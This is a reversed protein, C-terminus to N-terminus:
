RRYSGSFALSRYKSALEALRDTTGSIIDEAGLLWVAFTEGLEGPQRLLDASTTVRPFLVGVQKAIAELTSDELKDTYAM